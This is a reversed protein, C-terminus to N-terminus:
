NTNMVATYVTYFMKPDNSCESHVKELISMKRKITEEQKAKRAAVQKPRIEKAWHKGNRSRTAWELNKIHNNLKDGDKHNVIELKKPNQIFNLAVIRHVQLSKSEGETNVLTVSAYGSAGVGASLERPKAGPALRRYSRITGEQNVEYDPFGRIKKFVSVGM